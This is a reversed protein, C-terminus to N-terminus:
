RGGLNLPKLDMIFNNHPCTNPQLSNTATHGLCVRRHWSALILCIVESKMTQTCLIELNPCEGPKAPITASFAALLM